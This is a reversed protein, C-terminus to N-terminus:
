KRCPELRLTEPRTSFLRLQFSSPWCSKQGSRGDTSPLRLHDQPGPTRRAAPLTRFSYSFHLAPCPSCFGGQRPGPSDLSHQPMEAKMGMCLLHFTICPALVRGATSLFGSNRKATVSWCQHRSVQDAWKTSTLQMLSFVTKLFFSTVERGGVLSM